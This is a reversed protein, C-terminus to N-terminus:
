FSLSTVIQDIYDKYEERVEYEGAENEEFGFPILMVVSKNGNSVYIDLYMGPTPNAIMMVRREGVEEDSVLEMELDRLEADSLSAFKASVADLDSYDYGYISFDACPTSAACVWACADGECGPPDIEAKSMDEKVSLGWTYMEGYKGQIYNSTSPQEIFGRLRIRTTEDEIAPEKWGTPYDFSIGIDPNEYHNVADSTELNENVETQGEETTEVDRVTSRDIVLFVALSLILLVLAAVFVQSPKLKM